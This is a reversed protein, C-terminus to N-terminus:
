TINKYFEIIYEDHPAKIDVDYIFDETLQIPIFNRHYLLIGMTMTRQSSIFLQTTTFLNFYNELNHFYMVEMLWKCVKLFDKEKSKSPLFATGVIGDLNIVFCQRAENDDNFYFIKDFFCPEYSPQKFFKNKYLHYILLKRNNKETESISIETTM